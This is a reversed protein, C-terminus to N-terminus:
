VTRQKTNDNELSSFFLASEISFYWSASTSKQGHRTDPLHFPGSFVVVVVQARGVTQPQSRAIRWPLDYHPIHDTAGGVTLDLLVGLRDLTLSGKLLGGAWERWEEWRVPNTTQSLQRSFPYKAVNFGNTKMLACKGDTETRGKAYVVGRDKENGCERATEALSPTATSDPHMVRDAAPRGGEWSCQGTSRLCRCWATSSSSHRSCGRRKRQGRRDRLYPM